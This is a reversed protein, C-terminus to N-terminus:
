LYLRVDNPAAGILCKLLNFIQPAKNQFYTQRDLLINDTLITIYHTFELRRAVPHPGQHIFYENYQDM